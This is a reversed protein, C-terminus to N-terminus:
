CCRSTTNGSATLANLRADFRKKYDIINEFPGQKCAAYEERATKIIVVAVKSTNLIQHCKKIVIWFGLPDRTAIIKSWNAHGQVEDLSEKSLRIILYAFM